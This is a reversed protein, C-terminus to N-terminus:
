PYVLRYFVTPQTADITFNTSSVSNNASEVWTTPQGMGVTLKGAHNVALIVGDKEAHRLDFV